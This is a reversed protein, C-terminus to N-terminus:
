WRLQANLTGTELIAYKMDGQYTGEIRYSADPVSFLCRSGSAMFEVLVRGHRRLRVQVGVLPNGTQASVFSVGLNYPRGDSPLPATRDIATDGCIYSISYRQGPETPATQAIATATASACLVSAVVTAVPLAPMRPSPSM